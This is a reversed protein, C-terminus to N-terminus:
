RIYRYVVNSKWRGWIKVQEISFKFKNLMDSARGIRFSHFGYCSDDLGLDILATKLVQTAHHPMVAQGNRFIFLPENTDEYDDRHELYSKILAFPCFNRKAKWEQAPISSTIKIKQPRSGINHTKSSYLIILIKDKNEAVHINCAKIVHPSWTLEGIRMLGYYGLAFM